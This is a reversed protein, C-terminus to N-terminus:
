LLYALAVEGLGPRRPRRFIFPRQHLGLVDGNSPVYRRLSGGRSIKKAASRPRELLIRRRPRRPGRAEVRAHGGQKPQVSKEVHKNRYASKTDADKVADGDEWAGPPSMFTLKLKDWPYADVGEPLNQLQGFWVLQKQWKRFILYSFIKVRLFKPGKLGKLFAVLEDTRTLEVTVHDITSVTM